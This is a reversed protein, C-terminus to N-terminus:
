ELHDRSTSPMRCAGPAPATWMSLLFCRKTRRPSVHFWTSSAPRAPLVWRPAVQAQRLGALAAGLQPGLRIPGGLSLARRLPQPLGPQRPLGFPCARTWCTTIEAPIKPNTCSALRAPRLGAPTPTKPYLTSNLGPCLNWRIQQSVDSPPPLYSLSNTVKCM